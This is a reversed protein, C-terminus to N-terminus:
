AYVTCHSATPNATSSSVTSSRLVTMSSSVTINRAGPCISSTTGNNCMYSGIGEKWNDPVESIGPYWAPGLLPNNCDGDSFPWAVFTPRLLSYVYRYFRCCLGLDIAISTVDNLRDTSVCRSSSTIPATCDRWATNSCFHVKFLSDTTPVTM